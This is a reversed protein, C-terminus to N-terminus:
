DVYQKGKVAHYDQLSKTLHDPLPANEDWDLCKLNAPSVEKYRLRSEPCIMIGNENPNIVHGHRSMWGKQMGPVGVIFAYDPVDKTVVAGAAIFAYRGLSSFFYFPLHTFPNIPFSPLLSNFDIRYSSAM